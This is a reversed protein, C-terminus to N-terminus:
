VEEKEAKKEAVKVDEERESIERGEGNNVVEERLKRRKVKMGERGLYVKM